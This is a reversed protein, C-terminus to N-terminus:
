ETIHTYGVDLLERVHEDNLSYYVVKGEKKYKVLETQRLVRLQHSIASPTKGLVFSLDCVCMKEVQLLTYLIKIRTRDGIVKFLDALKNLIEEDPIKDKVSKIIEDHIEITQCVEINKKNNKKSTDKTKKM